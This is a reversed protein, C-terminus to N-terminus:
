RLMRDCSASLSDLIFIAVLSDTRVADILFSSHLKLDVHPHSQACLNGHRPHRALIGLLPLALPQLLL